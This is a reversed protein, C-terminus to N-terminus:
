SRKEYGVRRMDGGLESSWGFIVSTRKYSGKWNKKPVLVAADIKKYKARMRDQMQLVELTALSPNRYEVEHVYSQSVSNKSARRQPAEETTKRAVRLPRRKKSPATPVDPQIAEEEAPVEDHAEESNREESGQRSGQRALYNSVHIEDVKRVKSNTSSSRSVPQIAKQHSVSCKNTRMKKEPRPYDNIGLTVGGATSGLESEGRKRKEPKLQRSPVSINQKLTKLESPSGSLSFEPLRSRAQASSEKQAPDLTQPFLSSQGSLVPQAPLQFVQQPIPDQNQYGTNQLGPIIEKNSNIGYSEAPLLLASSQISTEQKDGLGATSSANRVPSIKKTRQEKFFTKEYYQEMPVPVILANMSSLHGIDTDLRVQVTPNSQIQVQNASEEPEAVINPEAIDSYHNNPIHKEISKVGQTFRSEADADITVFESAEYQDRYHVTTEPIELASPNFEPTGLDTSVCISESTVFSSSQSPIAVSSIATGPQSAVKNSTSMGSGSSGRLRSARRHPPGNKAWKGLPDQPYHYANCDFDLGDFAPATNSYDDKKTRPQLGARLRTGSSRKTYLNPDNPKGPHIKPLMSAIETAKMYRRVFLFVHDWLDNGAHQVIWQASKGELDTYDRPPHGPVQILPVSNLSMDNETRKTNRRRPRPQETSDRSSTRSRQSPLSLNHSDTSVQALQSVSVAPRDQQHLQEESGTDHAGDAQNATHLANQNASRHDCAAQDDSASAPVFDEGVLIHRSKYQAACGHSFASDDGHVTSSSEAPPATGHAFDALHSEM